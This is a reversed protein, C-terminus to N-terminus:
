AALPMGNCVLLLLTNLTWEPTKPLPLKPYLKQYERLFFRAGINQAASLDCNYTKGNTFKCISFNYHKKGHELRYVTNRDTKGSGDFALKSTGWACVHSIRMGRRHAQLEVRKQVDNARWLHIREKLRGKKKGNRDLHEFVICDVKYLDAIEMIGKATGISLARSADTLWRYACKSKKGAQQYQRKRNMMHRLRDEECPLHIVGKAHVTGDATMVCWSAPANIGLDVALIRYRLPDENQVLERKEEFCFRIRYKGRVKEVAPSLLKRSAAMRKIYRGDSIRIQFAYWDWGSGNYLKLRIVGEELLSTDREQEYFTLEYHSPYGIVPEAGREAPSQAEWNRYNSVYSSVLGLADAIVARRTYGPMYRFRKDFEPYTAENDPTSHILLDGARKRSVQGKRANSPLAELRPWEHLFIGVCLKLAELCIRSTERMLRGDVPGSETVVFQKGKRKEYTLQKKIEATYCTKIDM